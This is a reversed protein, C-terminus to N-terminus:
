RKKIIGYIMMTLVYSNIGGFYTHNLGKKRLIMKIIIIM